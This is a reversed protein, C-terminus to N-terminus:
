SGTSRHRSGEERSEHRYELPFLWPSVATPTKPSQLSSAPLQFCPFRWHHRDRDEEVDQSRWKKTDNQEDTEFVLNMTIMPMVMVSLLLWWVQWVQRQFSSAHSIPDCVVPIKKLIFVKAIRTIFRFLREHQERLSKTRVIYLHRPRIVLASIFHILGVCPRLVQDVTLSSKIISPVSKRGPPLPETRRERNIMIITHAPLHHRYDRIPLPVM